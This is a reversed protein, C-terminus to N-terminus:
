QELPSLWQSILTAWHQMQFPYFLRAVFTIVLTTLLWPTIGQLATIWAISKGLKRISESRLSGGILYAIIGLAISIIIDFDQITAEPIIHLVSPSLLVGVILYGTIRPFKVKAAIAGGLFGAIVMIGLALIINTTMPM